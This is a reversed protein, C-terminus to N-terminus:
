GFPNALDTGSLTMPEFGIEEASLGTYTVLGFQIMITCRLTFQENTLLYLTYLFYYPNDPLM